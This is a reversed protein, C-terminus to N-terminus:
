MYSTSYPPSNEFHLQRPMRYLGPIRRGMKLSFGGERSWVERGLILSFWTELGNEAQVASVQRNKLQVTSRRGNEFQVARVQRNELHVTSEQGNELQPGRNASSLLAAVEGNALNLLAVVGNALKLLAM